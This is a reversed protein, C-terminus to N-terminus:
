SQNLRVQRQAPVRVVGYSPRYSPRTVGNSVSMSAGKESKPLIIAPAPIPLSTASVIKKSALTYLKSVWSRDHGMSNGMHSLLGHIPDGSTSANRLCFSLIRYEKTTLTRGDYVIDLARRFKDYVHSQDEEPDDHSIDALEESVNLQTHERDYEQVKRIYNVKWMSMAGGSSFLYQLLYVDDGLTYNNLITEILNSEAEAIITWEDLNHSHLIRLIYKAISVLKPRLLTLLLKTSKDKEVGM